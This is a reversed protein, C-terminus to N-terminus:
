KVCLYVIPDSAAPKKNVQNRRPVMVIISNMLGNIDASLFKFTYGQGINTFYTQLLTIKLLLSAFSFM